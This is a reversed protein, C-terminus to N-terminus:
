AISCRRSCATLRGGTPNRALRRSVGEPQGGDHGRFENAGADDRDLVLRRRPAMRRCQAARVAAPGHSAMPSRVKDLSLNQWGVEKIARTVFEVPWAFRAHRMSQIPSGRRASSTAFSRDSRPATRCTSTPRRRSSPRIRRIRDRQHFLGLVQAGAPARNGPANGPCQDPRDRGAHRRVRQAGSDNPQRRQHRPVLVDQRQNRAARTQVRVGSLRQHGRLRGQPIGRVGAPELRHVRARRRLRGARHLASASRSSSWSKAASTKRRSRRPTAIAMSGCWCRPIRRWRWCSTASTASRTSASCSSRDKRGECCAPSTRSCRPARCWAPTPPWSASGTAFHNHWFLTMKEQLPRRTHIMRFMWRQRADDIDIDPSFLNKESASVQAHDPRGIRADVDDPQGEYDVLHAVAQAPSMDKYTEVDKASAGFGARRLLHDIEPNLQAM